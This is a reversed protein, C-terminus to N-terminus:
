LAMHDGQVPLVTPGEVEDAQVVADGGLGIVEASLLLDVAAPAVVFRAAQAQIEVFGAREDFQDLGAFPQTQGPLSPLNANGVVAVGAGEAEGLIVALLWQAEGSWAQCHEVVIFASVQDPDGAVGGALGTLLTVM